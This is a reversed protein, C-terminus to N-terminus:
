RLREICVYLSVPIISITGVVPLIYKASGLTSLCWWMIRFVCVIKGLEQDWATKSLKWLDVCNTHNRMAPYWKMGEWGRGVSRLGQGSKRVLDRPISHSTWQTVAGHDHSSLYTSVPWSRALKSICNSVLISDDWLHRHLGYDLLNLAASPPRCHTFEDFCKSDAISHIHPNVKSAMITHVQIVRDLWNPSASPPWSRNLNSSSKSSTSKFTTLATLRSATLRSITLRSATSRSPPM